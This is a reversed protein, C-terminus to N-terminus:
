TNTGTNNRYQLGVIVDNHMYLYEDFVIEFSQLMEVVMHVDMMYVNGFSLM